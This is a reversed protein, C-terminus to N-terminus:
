RSSGESCIPCAAALVISRSALDNARNQQKPSAPSADTRGPDKEPTSQPTTSDQNNQLDDSRQLRSQIEYVVRLDSVFKTSRAYVLHAQRDAGRYVTAPALDAIRPKKWNFSTFSAITLFMACLSVGAYAGRQFNINRFWGLVAAWGTVTERPGLTKDLINYVLRPSPEIQPLARLSLLAHTVSSVFPTCRACSNVHADFDHKEAVSLLGDLYDSLLLETQECTWNM